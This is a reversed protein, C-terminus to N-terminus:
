AAETHVRPDWLGQKEVANFRLMWIFTRFNRHECAARSTWNWNNQYTIHVKKKSLSLSKNETDIFACLMKMQRSLQKTDAQKTDQKWPRQKNRCWCYLSFNLSALFYQLDSLKKLLGVAHLHAYCAVFHLRKDITTLKSPTHDFGSTCSKNWM